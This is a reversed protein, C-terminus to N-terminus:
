VGTVKAGLALEVDADSSLEADSEDDSFDDLALKDEDALPVLEGVVVVGLGTDAEDDSSEETLEDEPDDPDPAADVLEVEDSDVDASEDFVSDGAALMSAVVAGTEIEDEPETLELELEADVDSAGAVVEGTLDPEEESPKDTVPDAEPVSVGTGESCERDLEAEIEADPEPAADVLEAEAEAATEEDPLVDVGPIEVDAGLMSDRDLEFATEADPDLAADSFDPDSVGAVVAGISSEEDLEPTVPALLKDLELEADVPDPTVSDGDGTVVAGPESAKLEDKDDDLEDVELRAVSAGDDLENDFDSEDPGPSAVLELESEEDNVGAVVAGVSSDNDLEDETALELESVAGDDLELAPVPDEDTGVM